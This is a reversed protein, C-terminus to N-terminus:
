ARAAFARSWAKATPWSGFKSSTFASGTSALVRWSGNVQNRVAVDDRGDSNFDGITVFQGIPLAAWASSSFTRGTSLSVFWTGDARQGVLDSRGDGNYDGPRVNSWTTTADWVGFKSDTFSTGTSTLV